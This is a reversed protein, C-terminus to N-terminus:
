TGGVPSPPSPPEVYLSRCSPCLHADLHVEHNVWSGTYENFEFGLDKLEKETLDGTGGALRYAEVLKETATTTKSDTPLRLSLALRALTAKKENTAFVAEQKLSADIRRWVTETTGERYLREFMPDKALSTLVALPEPDMFESLELLLSHASAQAFQRDESSPGLARSDRSEISETVMKARQFYDDEMGSSVSMVGGTDQYYKAAKLWISRYLERLAAIHAPSSNSDNVRYEIHMGQLYVRLTGDSLSGQTIVRNGSHRTGATLNEAMYRQTGYWAGGQIDVLMTEAQRRQVATGMGREYLKTLDPVGMRITDSPSAFSTLKRNMAGGNRGGGGTGTLWLIGPLYYRFLQHANLFVEYPVIVNQATMAHIHTSDSMGSHEGFRFMNDQIRELEHYSAWFREPTGERTLELGGSVSGDLHIGSVRDRNAIYTHADGSNAHNGYLREMAGRGSGERELEEAFRLNRRFYELVGERSVSRYAEQM